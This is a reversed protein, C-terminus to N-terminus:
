ESLNKLIKKHHVSIKERSLAKKTIELIESPTNDILIYKKKNHDGWELVEQNSYIEDYSLFRKLNM